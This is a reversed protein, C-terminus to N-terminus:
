MVLNWQETLVSKNNFPIKIHIIKIKPKGRHRQIAWEEIGWLKRKGKHLSYDTRSHSHVNVVKQFM